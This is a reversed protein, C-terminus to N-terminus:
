SNTDARMSEIKHQFIAAISQARTKAEETKPGKFHIDINLVFVKVWQEFHEQNIPLTAHPPFPRGHYTNNGFLLNGWFKYMTELHMTWHDQIRENFIPGLLEDEKIKDYFTNVMKQIDNVTAIDSIEEM